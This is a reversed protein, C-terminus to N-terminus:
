PVAGERFKEIIQSYHRAVVDPYMWRARDIVEQHILGTSNLEVEKLFRIDDKMEEHGHREILDEAMCVMDDPDGCVAQIRGFEDREIWDCEELDCEDSNKDKPDSKTAERGGIDPEKDDDTIEFSADNSDESSDRFIEAETVVATTKKRKREPSEEDERETQTETDATKVSQPPPLPPTTEAMEALSSPPTTEVMEAFTPINDEMATSPLPPAPNAEVM